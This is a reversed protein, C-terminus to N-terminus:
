GFQSTLSDACGAIFDDAVVGSFMGNKQGGELAGKCADQFTYGLGLTMKAVASGAGHGRSYSDDDVASKSESPGGCASVAGVAVLTIVGSRAVALIHRLAARAAFAPRGIMM